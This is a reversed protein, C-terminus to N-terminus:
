LTPKQTLGPLSVSDKFLDLKNDREVAIMKEVAEVLGIVDHENYYKIYDGFTKMDKERWVALCTQYEEETITADRLISYFHEQLPLETAKLKDLGDFWEYPFWGKVSEVKYSKYLQDLSTGAALYNTIDM